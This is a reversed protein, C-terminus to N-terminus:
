GFGVVVSAFACTWSSRASCLFVLESHIKGKTGVLWDCHLMHLQFHSLALGTGSSAVVTLTGDRFWTWGCRCGGFGNHGAVDVLQALDLILREFVDAGDIGFILLEFMPPLLALFLCLACSSSV